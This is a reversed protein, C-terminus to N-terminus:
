KRRHYIRLSQFEPLFDIVEESAEVPFEPSTLLGRRLRTVPTYVPSLMEVPADLLIDWEEEGDGDALQLPHLRLIGFEQAAHFDMSMM